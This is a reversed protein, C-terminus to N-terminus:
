LGAFCIPLTSHQFPVAKGNIVASYTVVNPCVGAEKMRELTVEAQEPDHGGQAVADIVSTYTQVDPRLGHQEM